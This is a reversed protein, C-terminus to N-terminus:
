SVFAATSAAFSFVFKGTNTVTTNSSFPFNNVPLSMAQTTLINSPSPTSAM